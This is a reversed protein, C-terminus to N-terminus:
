YMCIQKSSRARSRSLSGKRHGADVRGFGGAQEAHAHRGQIGIDAAPQEGRMGVAAGALAAVVGVLHAQQRAAAGVGLARAAHGLTREVPAHRHQLRADGLDDAAPRMIAAAVRDAQGGRGRQFGHGRQQPIARGLAEGRLRCEGPGLQRAPLAPQPVPGVARRQLARQRHQRGAGRPQRAPPRGALLRPQLHRHRQQAGRERRQGAAQGARARRVKLEGLGPLQVRPMGLQQAGGQHEAGIM